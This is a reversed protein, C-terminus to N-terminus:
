PVRRAKSTRAQERTKAKHCPVCLTQLNEPELDGGHKCPRIHDLEWLHRWHPSFHNPVYTNWGRNRMWGVLTALMVAADEDRRKSRDRLWYLVQRFAETPAGCAACRGHDRREIAARARGQYTRQEAAAQCNASCWARYRRTSDKIPTKCYRCPWYGDAGKPLKPFTEDLRTPRSM